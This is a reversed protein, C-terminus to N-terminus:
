RRRFGIIAYSGATLSTKGGFSSVTRSGFTKGYRASEWLPDGRKTTRLLSGGSGIWTGTLTSLFGDVAESAYHTRSVEQYSGQGFQYRAIDGNVDGLAIRPRLGELRLATGEGPIIAELTKSPGDFVYTDGGYVMGVIERSGDRDTDGVQLGTIKDWDGGMQLSHWEENGTAYDYVYVFVGLAGTHERGGGAVIELRGDGDVDAAEVSYFSAGVPRTANTWKLTFANSADFGYIEVVGDYLRDAAVLIEAKGDGDVDRLRLDHIGTWSLNGVIPPSIARLEFSTGDFVLIRGSGYGSESSWSAAVIEPRGDGDLDAKEPGIFPGDLHVNQWEFRKTEWDVVYLHDSGTSTAGAGWLVETKGDGDVDATAIATVGHEPNSVSWKTQLTTTDYARVSGWQGDGVLLDPTGDGDVDAVHIAGIDQPTSISWQPLRRDVDYAWVFNWAEAAILEAKGDADIDAAALHVGFGNPWKWEVAHTASDVVSGDTLAIELAPDGDMQAAVVDHGGVGAVQWKLAGGSSYVFLGSMSCVIVEPSADADVNAV